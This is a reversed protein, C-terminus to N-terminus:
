AAPTFLSDPSWFLCLASSQNLIPANRGDKPKWNTRVFSQKIHAAIEMGQDHKGEWKTIKTKGSSAEMLSQQGLILFPAWNGSTSTSRMDRANSGWTVETESGSFGTPRFKKLYPDPFFIFDDLEVYDYGYVPNNRSRERSIKWAEYLEGGERVLSKMNSPDVAIYWKENMGVDLGAIKADIVYDRLDSIVGRRLGYAALAAADTMAAAAIQAGDLAVKIALEYANLDAVSDSAPPTVEGVGGIIIHECSVQKGLGRGLDMELGGEGEPVSLIGKSAGNFFAGYADYTYEEALYMELQRRIENEEGGLIDKVRMKSMEEILPIGPTRVANVRINKHLYALYDGTRVPADGHTAAGKINQILTFRAEDGSTIEKRQVVASKSVDVSQQRRGDKIMRSKVPASLRGIASRFRYEYTLGREMGAEVIYEKTSGTGRGKWNMQGQAM